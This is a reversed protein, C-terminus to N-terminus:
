PYSSEEEPHALLYLVVLAQTRDALYSTLLDYAVGRIGYGEAISLLTSHSVWDFAKSLDLSYCYKKKSECNSITNKLETVAHHEENVNM